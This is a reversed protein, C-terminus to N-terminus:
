EPLDEPNTTCLEGGGAYTQFGQENPVTGEITLEGSGDSTGSKVEYAFLEYAGSGYPRRFYTIRVWYTTSPTLSSRVVRWEGEYYEFEFGSTREEWEALCATEPTTATAWESWAAAALLRDIADEETDEDSLTDAADVATVKRYHTPTGFAVCADTAALQHVLGSDDDDFNASGLRTKADDVSALGGASVAELAGTGANFVSGSVEGDETLVGTVSDYSATGSYTLTEVLPDLGGPQLTREQLYTFITFAYLGFQVAAGTGGYKTQGYFTYLGNGTMRLDVGGSWGTSPGSTCTVGWRNLVTDWTYDWVVPQGTSNAGTTPMSWTGSLALAPDTCNSDDFISSTVEGSLTKVRYKKPPTSPSTFESFGILEAVGGRIRCEYAVSVCSGCCQCPTSSIITISM